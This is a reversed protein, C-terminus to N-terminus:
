AQGWPVRLSKPLKLATFASNDKADYERVDSAGFLWVALHYAKAKIWSFGSERLMEYFLRDVCKKSIPISDLYQYLADHILSAHHAQQWFIQKTELQQSTNLSWIEEQIQKWDPTGVLLLWFFWRKPTCGDWAYTRRVVFDYHVTKKALNVESRGPNVVILSDHIMLWEGYFRKDNAYETKKVVPVDVYNLWPGERDRSHFGWKTAEQRKAQLAREIKIKRGQLRPIGIGLYLIVGIILSPCLLKPYFRCLYAVLAFGIITLLWFTIDCWPRRLKPVDNNMKITWRSPMFRLLLNACTSLENRLPAM